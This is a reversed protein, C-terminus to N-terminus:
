IYFQPGESRCLLQSVLWVCCNREGRTKEDWRGYGLVHNIM